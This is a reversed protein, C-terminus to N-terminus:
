KGFFPSRSLSCGGGSLNATARDGTECPSLLRRAASWVNGGERVHDPDLPPDYIQYKWDLRRRLSGLSETLKMAPRAETWGSAPSDVCFIVAQKSCTGWMSISGVGSWWALAGRSDGRGDNKSKKTDNAPPSPSRPRHNRSDGCGWGGNCCRRVLLAVQREASRASAASIAALATTGGRGAEPWRSAKYRTRDAVRSTEFTASDEVTHPV